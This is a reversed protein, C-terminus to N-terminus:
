FKGLLRLVHGKSVKKAQHFQSALGKGRVAWQNEGDLQCESLNSLLCLYGLLLTLDPGSDSGSTGGEADRSLYSLPWTIEHLLVYVRTSVMQKMSLTPLATSSALMSTGSVCGCPLEAVEMLINTKSVSVTEAATKWDWSYKGSLRHCMRIWLCETRWPTAPDESILSPTTAAGVRINAVHSADYQSSTASGPM